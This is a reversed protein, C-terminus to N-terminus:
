QTSKGGNMFSNRNWMAIDRQKAATLANSESQGVQIKKMIEFYMRMIWTDSHDPSRNIVKKIDEKKTAMKKGDGISVDQYNFLEEIIMEKYQGTVRSAIKHDNCYKALMFVCQSRLNKYDSVMPADNLYGINPLRTIDIDTKIAAFSSKYVKIGTLLSSSGM